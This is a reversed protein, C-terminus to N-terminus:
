QSDDLLRQLGGKLRRMQGELSRLEDVLRMAEERDLAPAGVRQMAISRRLNELEYHRDVSVFMHEYRPTQSHATRRVRELGM